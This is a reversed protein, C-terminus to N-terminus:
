IGDCVGCLAEFILASTREDDCSIVTESASTKILGEKPKSVQIFCYGDAAKDDDCISGIVGREQLALILRAPDVSGWLLMQKNSHKLLPKKESVLLYKGNRLLLGGKLRAIAMSGELLRRPKLQFALETALQVEFGKRSNPVRLRLNESYYLFAFSGGEKIPCHSRLVEPFQLHFSLIILVYLNFFSLFIAKNLSICSLRGSRAKATVTGAITSSEADQM